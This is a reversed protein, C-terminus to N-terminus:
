NQHKRGPPQARLVAKLHRGFITSGCLWRACRTFQGARKALVGARWTAQAASTTKRKKRPTTPIVDDQADNTHMYATDEAAEDRKRKGKTQDKVRELQRKAEQLKSELDTVTRKKTLELVIAQKEVKQLAYHDALAQTATMYGKKVMRDSYAM